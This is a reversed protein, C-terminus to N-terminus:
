LFGDVNEKLVVDLPLALPTPLSERFLLTRSLRRVTEYGMTEPRQSILFALRGERLAAVNPPTLDYGAVQLEPGLHAYEGVNANPVFLGGVGPHALLFRATQLRREDVPTSLSQPLSLVTRGKEGCCAQFGECRMELHEDDEDFEVLVVSTGPSLGWDLLRAALRGGQLPDQGVFGHARASEMDTDFFVVPLAPPLAEVLPRLVRNHIPALALADCGDAMLDNLARASDDPDARDFGNVQVRIQLPKLEAAARQMGQELVQWYGFDQDTRPMLVGITKLQNGTSLRSAFLNPQYGQEAILAEIRAANEASVRGRRHIV